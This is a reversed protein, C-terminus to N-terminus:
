LHIFNYFKSFMLSTRYLILFLTFDGDLLHCSPIEVILRHIAKIGTRNIHTLRAAHPNYYITSQLM